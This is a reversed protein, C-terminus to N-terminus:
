QSTIRDDGLCSAFSFDVGGHTRRVVALIHAPLAVGSQDSSTILSIWVSYATPDVRSESIFACLSDLDLGESLDFSVVYGTGRPRSTFTVDPLLEQLRGFERQSLAMFRFGFTVESFSEAM